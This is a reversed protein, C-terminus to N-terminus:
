GSDPIPTPTANPVAKIVVAQLGSVRDFIKDLDITTTEKTLWRYVAQTKPNKIINSTTPSGLGAEPHDFIVLTWTETAENHAPDILDDLGSIPTNRDMTITMKGSTEETPVLLSIKHTRSDTPSPDDNKVRVGTGLIGTTKNIDYEVFIDWLNATTTAKIEAQKVTIVEGSDWPNDSSFVITLLGMINGADVSAGGVSYGAPIEIELSKTAAENKKMRLTFTYASVTDPEKSGAKVSDVTSFPNGPKVDLRSSAPKVLQSGDAAAFVNGTNTDVRYSVLAASDPIDKIFDPAFTIKPDQPLGAEFDLLRVGLDGASSDILQDNIAGSNDRELSVVPYVQPFADNFFRDAASEITKTDSLIQASQGVSGVGTVAGAVVGALIGIIAMVVLLEVLTFGRQGRPHARGPSVGTLIEFIKRGSVKAIRNVAKM